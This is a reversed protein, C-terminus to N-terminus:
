RKGPYILYKNRQARFKRLEAQWAGVVEEASAGGDIMTRLRESGTLKDIWYPREKDWSDKRWAFEPYLRKAEVLMHVGALIPDLAHPDTVTVDVGGVVKKEHKSFTPQFYAERFLVGALGKAALAESWQYDIFPAGVLQFPRTTGRGESLNTGEFMCTGPYISATDETPMNPSPLVWHLGTDEFRMERRWGQMEIVTLKEGLRGGADAEICEADLFRAAEGLTMGHQQTVEAAGVFTKFPPTMMPGYAQGGVPNPRDLVVFKAGISVAAQMAYYMTWIYTYFRSGADQIDFVITEVGAEKLMEAMKGPNTGYFDYITYGTRPDISTGEADGAQATGRFGHEPGFIGVIDLGAEKMSDVIHTLDHLVGTPNTIVGLKTGRLASWDDDAQLQAGTIVQKDKGPKGKGKGKGGKAFAPAALPVSAAGLATTALIKRRSLSM